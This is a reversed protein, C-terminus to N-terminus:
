KLYVSKVKLVFCANYNMLSYEHELNVKVINMSQNAKVIIM